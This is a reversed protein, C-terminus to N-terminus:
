KIWLRNAHKRSTTTIPKYTHNDTNGSHWSTVAYLYWHLYTALQHLQKAHQGLMQWVKKQLIAHTHLLWIHMFVIYVEVILMDIYVHIYMYLPVVVCPFLFIATLFFLVALCIWFHSVGMWDCCWTLLDSCANIRTGQVTVFWASFAFCVSTM